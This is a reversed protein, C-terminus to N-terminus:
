RRGYFTHKRVTAGTGTLLAGTTAVSTLRGHGRADRQAFGFAEAAKKVETGFSDALRAVVKDLGREGAAAELDAQLRRMWTVFHQRREPHTRWKDAFNEHELAPNAVWWIGDRNEVSNPMAETAKLVAESLNAEGGYAHGALTTILISPPKQEPNYRFHLDRHRKLVQVVLQLVTKVEWPQVQQVDVGREKALTTRRGLQEQEMQLHFWNAFGIPNSTQWRQLDRDGLLVGHPADDPNPITPLVDMHFRPWSLTWCRGGEDLTPSTGARTRVYDDLCKGVTDKLGDKTIADSALALRIVLDIDYDTIGIPLVVTGLRFSGQPYIAIDTEDFEEGAGLHEAVDRYHAVAARYLDPPIDLQDITGKLLAALLDDASEFM